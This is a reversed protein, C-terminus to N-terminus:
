SLKIEGGFNVLEEVDNGVTNNESYSILYMHHLALTQVGSTNRYFYIQVHTVDDAESFYCSSLERESFRHQRDTNDSARNKSTEM